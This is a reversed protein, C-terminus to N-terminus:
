LLEGGNTNPQLFSEIKAAFGSDTICVSANYEKGLAHGIADKTGCIYCTVNYYSCSNTISKKTNDSADEAVIVLQAKGFRVADKVAGEGSVARGAKKALGILSLVKQM